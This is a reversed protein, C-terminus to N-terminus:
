DYDFDGLSVEKGCSPCEVDPWDDSWCKPVNVDKWPIEVEIECFPCEFSICVPRSVIRFDAM